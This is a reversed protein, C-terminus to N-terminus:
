ANRAYVDAAWTLTERQALRFGAGCLLRDMDGPPHVFARLASSGLRRVANETALMLRVYWRDRPYSLALGRRAHAAARDLLARYDEYCCV